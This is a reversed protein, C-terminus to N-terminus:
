MQKFSRSYARSVKLLEKRDKLYIVGGGFPDREIRGIAALNVITSRHIQVFQRPDLQSLLEKLPARILHREEGTIAETYKDTAQFYLVSNVPVLRTTRGLGVILWSLWESRPKALKSLLQEIDPRSGSGRKLRVICQALRADSVPKLLYDAAAADFAAVAYEDHATVFIIRTDGAARAADIGSLGPMRIDLFAFDPKLSGIASLADIGNGVTALVELESWQQKLREGLDRALQPEDDAIIATPM